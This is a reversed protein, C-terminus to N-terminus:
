EALSVPAGGQRASHYAAEVLQHAIVAEGLGPDPPQGGSLADVFARDEEAYARVALGVEDQGLPLNTVWAPAACSRVEVGDSTQIHLPGLFDNELWAM